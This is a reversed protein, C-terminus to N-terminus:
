NAVGPPPDCFTDTAPARSDGSDLDVIEQQQATLHDGVGHGMRAHGTHHAHPPGTRFHPDFHGVGIRLERM